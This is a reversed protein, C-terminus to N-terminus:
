GKTAAKMAEAEEKAAALAENFWFRFEAVTMQMLDTPTWGRRVMWEVDRVHPIGNRGTATM